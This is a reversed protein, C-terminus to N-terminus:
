ASWDGTVGPERTDNTNNANGFVALRSNNTFSLAFLRAIYRNELGYGVGANAVWGIAYQRKLNVDVVLPLENKDREKTIFSYDHEKRYVKVKDVMYAPLNELAVRPDGRFFDEGNVLLSSVYQGNVRIQGGRLEFGPLCKILGDLMSGESLQFADANYVLTDGKVVMRIKSATVTAAGLENELSKSRKKLLIEGLFFRKERRGVDKKHLTITQTVYGEKSFRFLLTTRPVYLYGIEDINHSYGGYGYITNAEFDRILSSDERMIEVRVGKLIECTFSDQVNGYVAVSDEM